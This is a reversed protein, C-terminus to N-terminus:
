ESWYSIYIVTFTNGFKQDTSYMHLVNLNLNLNVNATFRFMEEEIM